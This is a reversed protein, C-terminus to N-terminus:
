HSFWAHTIGAHMHLVFNIQQIYKKYSVATINNIMLIVFKYTPYMIISSSVYNIHNINHYFSCLEFLIVNLHRVAVFLVVSTMLDNDKPKTHM